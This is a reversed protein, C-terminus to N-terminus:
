TKVSGMKVMLPMFCCIGFFIYVSVAAVNCLLVGVGVDRVDPNIESHILETGPL